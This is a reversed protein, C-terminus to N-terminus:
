SATTEWNKKCRRSPTTNTQEKIQLMMRRDDNEKNLSFSEKMPKGVDALAIKRTSAENRLGSIQSMRGAMIM